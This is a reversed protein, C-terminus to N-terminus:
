SPQSPRAFVGAITVALVTLVAAALSAVMAGVPLWTPDTGTEVVPSAVSLTTAILWLVLTATALGIWLPRRAASGRLRSMGWLLAITAVLGWLWSTAAAVPMHQQESGTVMDPSLTSILLVAVWIGSIGTACWAMWSGDATAGRPTPPRDSPPADTM